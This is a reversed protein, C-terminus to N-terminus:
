RLCLSANGHSRLPHKKRQGRVSNEKKGLTTDHLVGTARYQHMWGADATLESTADQRRLIEAKDECPTLLWQSLLQEGQKTVTRNVAQFLSSEGFIDLDNAYPHEPNNYENGKKLGSWNGSLYNVETQCCEALAQLLDLKKVVRDDLHTLALFLIVMPITILSATLTASAFYLTIGYVIGAFTGIKAATLFNRKYSLAKHQARHQSIEEKYFSTLDM